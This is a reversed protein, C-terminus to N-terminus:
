TPMNLCAPICRRRSNTITRVAVISLGLLARCKRVHRSRSERRVHDRTQSYIYSVRLVANSVIPPRSRYQQRFQSSQTDSGPLVRSALPGAGNGVYANQYFFPRESSNGRETLFSVTRQPNHVFDAELLSVRDYFWDPAWRSPCNEPREESFFCLGRTPLLGGGTGVTGSTV